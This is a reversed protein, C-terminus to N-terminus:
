GKEGALSKLQHLLAPDLEELQGEIQTLNQKVKDIIAVEPYATVIKNLLTWSEELLKKKQAPTESKRAKVFLGAAQSRLEKALETQAKLLKERAGGGYASTNVLSALEPIAAAYKEADFLGVARNWAELQEAEGMTTAVPGGAASPVPSVAAGAPPGHTVVEREGGGALEAVRRYVQPCEGELFAIDDGLIQWPALGVEHHHAVQELLRGYSGVLGELAAYCGAWEGPRRAALEPAATMTAMERWRALREECVMLRREVQGLPSLSPASPVVTAVPAVEAFVLAGPVGSQALCNGALGLALLAPALIILSARGTRM